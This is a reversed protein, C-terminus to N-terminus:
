SLPHESMDNANLSSHTKSTQTKNSPALSQGVGREAKTNWNWLFLKAAAVTSVGPEYHTTQSLQTRIISLFCKKLKTNLTLVM